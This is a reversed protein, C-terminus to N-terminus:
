TRASGITPVVVAIMAAANLACRAYSGVQRRAVGDRGGYRKVEGRRDQFDVEVM